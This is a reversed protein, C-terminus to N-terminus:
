TGARAASRSLATKLCDILAGEEFPKSLFGIAGASMARRRFNEELFGSVFIVSMTQGHAILHSQLDLGNLGPIQLDTILCSTQGIQGCDLFDQASEYTAVEYGLSHVLNAIAERAVSNSCVAWLSASIAAASSLRICHISDPM